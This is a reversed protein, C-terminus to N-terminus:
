KKSLNYNNVKEYVEALSVSNTFPKESDGTERYYVKNGQEVTLLKVEMQKCLRGPRLLAKDIELKKANTTAIVRIDLLSGIFGDAFNLLKSIVSINDGQRSVLCEDADEIVLIISSKHMSESFVEMLISFDISRLLEAPFYIFKVRKLDFSNLFSKVLHTKGTGTDGNIIVFRGFPNSKNMQSVIYNYDEIVDNSYNDKVLDIGPKGIAKLRLSQGLLVYLNPVGEDLDVLKNLMERIINITEVKLTHVSLTLENNVIFVAIISDDSAFLDSSYNDVRMSRLKNDWSSNGLITHSYIKKLGLDAIISYIKATYKDIAFQLEEDNLEEAIKLQRKVCDLAHLEQNSNLSYNYLGWIASSAMNEFKVEEFSSSIDDRWKINSKADAITQPINKLQDPLNNLNASFDEMQTFFKKLDKNNPM